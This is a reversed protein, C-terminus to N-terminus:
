RRGHHREIPDIACPGRHMRSVSHLPPEDHRIICCSIDAIHRLVVISIQNIRKVPFLSM